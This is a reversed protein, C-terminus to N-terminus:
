EGSPLLIKYDIAFDFARLPLTRSLNILLNGLSHNKSSKQCTYQTNHICYDNTHFFCDFRFGGDGHDRQSDLL